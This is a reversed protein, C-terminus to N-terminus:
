CGGVQLAFALKPVISRALLQEWDKRDFVQVYTQTGSTSAPHSYSPHPQTLLPARQTAPLVLRGISPIHLWAPHLHPRRTVGGWTVACSSSCGVKHWPALIVHASSDSPHWAQLASAFKFRIVPWLEAMQAGLFPQM